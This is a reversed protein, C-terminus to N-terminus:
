NMKKIFGFVITTSKAANEAHIVTLAKVKMSVAYEPMDYAVLGGLQLLETRRGDPPVIIGFQQDNGFQFAYFGTIGAQFRGYRPGCPVGGPRHCAHRRREASM